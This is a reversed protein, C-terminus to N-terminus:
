IHIEVDNANNRAGEDCHGERNGNEDIIFGGSQQIVVRGVKEAGLREGKFLKGPIVVLV